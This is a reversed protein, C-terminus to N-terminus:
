LHFFMGSVEPFEAGDHYCSSSPSNLLWPKQLLRLGSVPGRVALMGFAILLIRPVLICLSGGSGVSM